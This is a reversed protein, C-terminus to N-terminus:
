GRGLWLRCPAAAAAVAPTCGKDMGMGMSVLVSRRVAEKQGDSVGEKRGDGKKSRRQLDVM